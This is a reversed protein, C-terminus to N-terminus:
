KKDKFCYELVYADEKKGSKLHYYDKRKGIEVFFLKQYLAIASHNTKRVELFIKCISKEKLDNLIYNLIEQGRGAGRQAPLICFTLIEAEDLIRRILTFGFPQSNENIIYAETGEVMFLKRFDSVSWHKEPSDKFSEEHLRGLVDSAVAGMVSIEM